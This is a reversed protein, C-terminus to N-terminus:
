SRREKCSNCKTLYHANETSCHLCIWSKVDRMIKKVRPQVNSGFM